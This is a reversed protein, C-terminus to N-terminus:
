KLSFKIPLTYECRVIKGDKMKAPIWNPMAKVVRLAEADLLPDVSHVVRADTISGDKNVVYSVSVRGETKQKLAEAPYKVNNKLYELLAGTGGPYEPMVDPVKSIKEDDQPLSTIAEPLAVPQSLETTAQVELPETPQVSMIRAMADINNALLLGGVLPLLALYKIRGVNNTRKQNLMSIRKKLPLVSFHNYLQAKAQSTYEMGILHYQYEKKDYGAHMVDQDAQFEHNISIEEKMLWAFPNIWCLITMIESVIMDISHKKQVHTHEHLLIENLVKQSYRDPHVFIWNLFSYPEETEPLLCVKIGNIVKKQCKLYTRTVNTLEAICRVLLIGVGSLYIILFMFFVVNGWDSQSIPINHATSIVEKPLIASYYVIVDAVASRTSLWTSLDPLQFLFVILYISLLTFRRLRFFTDNRYLLKYCIYLIALAVNAKMFYILIPNDM